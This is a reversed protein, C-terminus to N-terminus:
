NGLLEVSCMGFSFSLLIRRGFWTGDNEYINRFVIRPKTNAPLLIGNPNKGSKGRM